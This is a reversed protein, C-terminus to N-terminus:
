PTFQNNGVDLDWHSAVITGQALYEDVVGNFTSNIWRCHPCITTSYLRIIPKGDQTCIEANPIVQFTSISTPAIATTDRSDYKSSICGSFILLAFLALLLFSFRM